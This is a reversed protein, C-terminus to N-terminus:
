DGAGHFNGHNSSNGGSIEEGGHQVEGEMERIVAKKEEPPRALRYRSFLDDRKLLNQQL